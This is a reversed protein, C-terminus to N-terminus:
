IASCSGTGYLKVRGFHAFAHVHALTCAAYMVCATHSVRGFLVIEPVRLRAGKGVCVKYDM